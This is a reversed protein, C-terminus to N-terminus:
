KVELLSENGYKKYGTNRDRCFARLSEAFASRRGSMNRIIASFVSEGPKCIASWLTQVEQVHSLAFALAYRLPQDVDRPEFSRHTREFIFNGNEIRSFEVCGLTIAPILVGVVNRSTENLREILRLVSRHREEFRKALQERCSATKIYTECKVLVFVILYKEDQQFTKELLTKVRDHGNLEDERPDDSVEMLAVSDLVNFIVHSRAVKAKLTDLDAGSRMMGGGRFDHFVLDFEKTGKFVVEFQHEIFGQTGQLLGEVPAFVTQDMVRSLNHYAADLNDQTAEEPRLSFDTSMRGIERYMTALLSSKGVGSPGLMIMNIVRDAM